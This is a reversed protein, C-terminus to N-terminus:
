SVGLANTSTNNGNELLPFQPMSPIVSRCICCSVSQIPDRPPRTSDWSWFGHKEDDYQGIEEEETTVETM